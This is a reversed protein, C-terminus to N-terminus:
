QIPRGLRVALLNPLSLDEQVDEGQMFEQAAQRVGEFWRQDHMLLWGGSKLSGAWSALDAKVAEYSHDGDILLLDLSGEVRARMQSSLGRLPVVAGEYPHTNRFFDAYTDRPGESMADNKWTDVCYFRAVRGKGGELLFCASAGVYSGIEAMRSDEPLRLAINYLLLREEQTFDTPITAIAAFRPSFFRKGPHLHYGPVDLFQWDPETGPSPCATDILALSLIRFWTAFISSQDIETSM